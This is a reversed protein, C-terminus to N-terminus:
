CTIGSCVLINTTNRYINQTDDDGTDRYALVTAVNNCYLDHHHM